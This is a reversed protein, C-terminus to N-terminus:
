EVSKVLIKKSVSTDDSLTFTWEEEAYGSLKENLENIAGVVQKSTTSLNNDTKDQKPGILTKAEERTIIDDSKSEPFTVQGFLPKQTSKFTAVCPFGGKVEGKFVLGSANGQPKSVGGNDSTCSMSSTRDCKILFHAQDILYLSAVYGVNTKVFNLKKTEM